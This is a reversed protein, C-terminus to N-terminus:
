WHSTEIHRGTETQVQVAALGFYTAWKLPSENLFRFFVLRMGATVALGLTLIAYAGQIHPLPFDQSSAEGQWSLRQSTLYLRGYGALVALDEGSLSMKGQSDVPRGPILADDAATWLEAARSALYLNEGPNLTFQPHPIAKLHLGSKMQDYWAALPWEQGASTPHSASPKDLRLYFDDGPVRRVRWRAGCSTCGVRESRLLTRRHVLADHAACLPCRWLLAPIV